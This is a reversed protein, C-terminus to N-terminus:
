KKQFDSPDLSNGAFKGRGGEWDQNNNKKKFRPLPVTKFYSVYSWYCYISSRYFVRGVKISCEILSLPHHNYGYLFSNKDM